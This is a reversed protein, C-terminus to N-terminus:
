WYLTLATLGLCTLVNAVGMSLQGGSLMVCGELGSIIAFIGWILQPIGEKLTQRASVSIAGDVISPRPRGCHFRCHAGHGVFERDSGTAGARTRTLLCLSPLQRTFANV